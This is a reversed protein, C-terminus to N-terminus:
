ARRRRSKLKRMYADQLKLMMDLRANATREIGAYTGVHDAVNWYPLAYILMAGTATRGLTSPEPGFIEPAPFVAVGAPPVGMGVLPRPLAGLAAAAGAAVLFKRRTIVVSM